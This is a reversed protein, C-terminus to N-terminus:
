SGRCADHVAPGCPGWRGRCSGRDLTCTSPASPIQHPAGGGMRQDGKEQRSQRGPGVASSPQQRLSPHFSVVGLRSLYGEVSSSRSPMRSGWSGVSESSSNIQLDGDKGPRGDAPTGINPGTTSLRRRFYRATQTVARAKAPSTWPRSCATPRHPGDTAVSDDTGGTNGVSPRIVRTDDHVVSQRPLSQFDGHCSSPRLRRWPRALGARRKTRGGQPGSEEPRIDDAVM